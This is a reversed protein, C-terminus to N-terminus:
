QTCSGTIPRISRVRFEPPAGTAQAAAADTAATAARAPDMAGAQGAVNASPYLGGKIKLGRPQGGVIQVRRGVFDRVDVGTLRFIGTQDSLTYGGTPTESKQVCGTLTVTSPKKLPEKKQQAAVTATSALVLMVLISARM